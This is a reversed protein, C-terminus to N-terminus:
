PRSTRTLSSRQYRAAFAQARSPDSDCVAVFDSEPLSSLAEAQIQGVKGCGILATRVRNM